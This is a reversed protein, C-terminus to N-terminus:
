RIDISVTETARGNRDMIRSMLRVTELVVMRNVIWLNPNSQHIRSEFAELVAIHPLVVKALLNNPGAVLSVSKVGALRAIARVTDPVDAPPVQIGLWVIAKSSFAAPALKARCQLAGDAFLKSLRRKVTSESAGTARALAAVPMRGDRSMELCLAWDLDDVRGSSPMLTGRKEMPFLELSGRELSGSAMFGSEVHIAVIPQSSVKKVGPITPVKCLVFESLAATSMAGALVFIDSSGSVIDVFVAHPDRAVMAAVSRVADARCEIEIFAGTTERTLLPYSMVWALGDAELADWRRAVTVPDVDVAAGITAWSARPSLEVAHFIALDLEDLLHSDHM